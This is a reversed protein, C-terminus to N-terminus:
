EEPFSKQFFDQFDLFIPSSWFVKIDARAGSKVVEVFTRIRSFFSELKNLNCIEFLKGVQLAVQTCAEKSQIVFVAKSRTFYLSAYNRFVIGPNRPKKLGINFLQRLGNRTLTRM